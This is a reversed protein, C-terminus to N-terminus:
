PDEGHCLTNNFCGAPGPVSLHCDACVIANLENTNTHTLGDRWPAQAHPASVGHCDFCSVGSTGGNFGNGHCEKCSPFGTIAGPAAKASAGHQSPAGWGDPHVGAPGHCLTNNFCGAPTGQPAPNPSQGQHCIGCIVANQENTDTHTLGAGRWPAAPHPAPVGHCDFCDVNVIGGAFNSGHCTRCSSFGTNAGPSAKASAGHRSPSDWGSPHAGVLGHCLTNNFCGPEVVQAATVAQGLHCQACVSANGEDTDTHTRSSLPTRWPAPSHPANSHCGQGFCSVDSVGGDFNTGHCFQCGGFGTSSDPADKAAEGHLDPNAWNTPHVVAGHCLTNNFCGPEVVQAATVAQGLHCQACVDANLPNVDTHTRISLPSRWPSPPHPANVGHCGATFCSIKIIGGSFGEGHCVGCSAFGTMSDPAGKTAPGHVDASTWEPSHVVPVGHCTIGDFSAGFCSVKSVGGQLDAGHCEECGIPNSVFVGGHRELWGSTHRGTEPDFIVQSRPNGCGGAIIIVSIFFIFLLFKKVSM